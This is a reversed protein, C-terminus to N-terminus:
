KWLLECQRVQHAYIKPLVLVYWGNTELPTPISGLTVQLEGLQLEPQLGIELPCDPVVVNLKALNAQGACTMLTFVYSTLQAVWSM